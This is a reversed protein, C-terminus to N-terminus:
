ILINNFPGQHDLAITASREDITPPGADRDFTDPMGAVRAAFTANQAERAFVAPSGATHAALALSAIREFLAVVAVHSVFVPAGVMLSMDDGPGAGPISGARGIIEIIGISGILTVPGTNLIGAIGVFEITGTSGPISLPDMVLSGAVGVIEIVGTSGVLTIPEAVALRWVGGTYNATFTFGGGYVSQRPGNARGSFVTDPSTTMPTWDGGGIPRTYWPGNAASYTPTLPFSPATYLNGTDTAVTSYYNGTSLSGTIDTWNLGDDISRYIHHELALILSSGVKTLCDTAGHTMNEVVVQDWTTGGDDTRWVGDDQTGVLWTDSDSLFFVAHGTGWGTGGAPHNTWTSGGNFSESVGSWTEGVWVTHWTVLVHDALTEDLAICYVDNNQTPPSAAPMLTWTQGGDTSKFPGGSGFGANSWLISTNFPDVQLTWNVGTELDGDTSHHTWSNGDDLSRWLGEYDGTVYLTGDSALAISQFGYNAGPTPNDPDPVFPAIQTWVGPTLGMSGSLGILEIIGTSGVLTVPGGGGGVDGAVNVNGIRGGKSAVAQRSRTGGNALPSGDTWSDVEVTNIFVKQVGGASRCLIVDGDAIAVSPNGQFANNRWRQITGGVFLWSYGDHDSWTSTRHTALELEGATTVVIEIEQDDTTAATDVRIATATQFSPDAVISSGDSGWPNNIVWTAGAVPATNCDFTWTAM